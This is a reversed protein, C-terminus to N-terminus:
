RLNKKRIWYSAAETRNSVNIKKFINSIYNRVTKDSISLSEAIEKNTKGLSLAQLIKTERPSFESSEEIKQNDLKISNFVGETVSPDLVSEGNHVSLITKILEESEINKLLYGDAGARITEMVIHQEAYATLIIIKINPFLNKISICGNVGDGDPLKFDLLVVDPNTDITMMIAEKLTAAEGCVELGDNLQLLLRLGDRVVSHDDVLLVRIKGKM